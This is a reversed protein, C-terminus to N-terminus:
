VTLFGSGTDPLLSRDAQRKVRDDTHTITVIRIESDHEMKLTQDAVPISLHSSLDVTM